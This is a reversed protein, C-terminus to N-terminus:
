APRKEERDRAGLAHALALTQPAVPLRRGRLYDITSAVVARLGADLDRLSLETLAAREAYARGPELADAVYLVMDLPDM